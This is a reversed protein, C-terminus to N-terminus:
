EPETEKNAEEESGVVVISPRIVRDHLKYGKQLEEIVIGEKGKDQRIAEHQYPDFPEGMASIPSLLLKHM